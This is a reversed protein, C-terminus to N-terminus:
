KVEPWTKIKEIFEAFNSHNDPLPDGDRNIICDTILYCEIQLKMAIVDEQVDNGVMLCEEPTKNIKELIEQYYKINPKCFHSDEYTTILEFDDPNLGAWAIRHMTAQRPFMPNTAVVLHYGKEKLIQICEKAYPTPNTAQDLEAFDNLYFDNFVDIVDEKKCGIAQQFCQWFVEENTQEGTNYIMKETGAWVSGILKEPDFGHPAMKKALAKFYAKMFVDTDLPLLTGDLDFLITNIM